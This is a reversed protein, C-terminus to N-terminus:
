VKANAWAHLCSWTSLHNLIIGGGFFCCCDAVVVFQVLLRTRSITNEMKVM